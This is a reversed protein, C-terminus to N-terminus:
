KTNSPCYPLRAPREPCNMVERLYPHAMFIQNTRAKNYPHSPAFIGELSKSMRATECGFISAEIVAERRESPPLQASKLYRVFIETSYWDAKAEKAHNETMKEPLLAIRLCEALDSHFRSLEKTKVSLDIGHGFEHAMVRMFRYPSTWDRVMAVKHSGEFYQDAGPLYVPTWDNASNTWLNKSEPPWALKIPAFVRADSLVQHRPSIQPAYTQITRLMELTRQKDKEPVMEKLRNKFDPELKEVREFIAPITHMSFERLFSARIFEDYAKPPLKSYLADLFRRSQVRRRQSSSRIKQDEETEFPEKIQAAAILSEWDTEASLEGERSLLYESLVDHAKKRDQKLAANVNAFTKTWDLELYPLPLEKKIVALTEPKINKAVFNLARDATSAVERDPSNNKDKLYGCAYTFMDECPDIVVPTEVPNEPNQHALLSSVSTLSLGVILAVCLINRM